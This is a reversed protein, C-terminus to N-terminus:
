VGGTEVPLSRPLRLAMRGPHFSIAVLRRFRLWEVGGRSDLSPVTNKHLGALRMDQPDRAHGGTGPPERAPSQGGPPPPLSAHLPAHPPTSQVGRGPGPFGARALKRVAPAVQFIAM